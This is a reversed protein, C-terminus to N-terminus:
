SSLLGLIFSGPRWCLCFAEDLINLRSVLPHDLLFFPLPFRVLFPGSASGVTTPKLQGLDSRPWLSSSWPLSLPLPLSLCAPVLTSLWTQGSAMPCLVKSPVQVWVWLILITKPLCTSLRTCITQASSSSSLLSYDCSWIVTSKVQLGSRRKHPLLM